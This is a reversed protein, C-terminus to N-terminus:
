VKLNEENWGEEQYYGGIVMHKLHLLNEELIPANSYFLM